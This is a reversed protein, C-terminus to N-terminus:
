LELGIKVEGVAPNRPEDAEYDGILYINVYSVPVGSKAYFSDLENQIADALRRELARRENRLDGINMLRMTDRHAREVTPGSSPSARTSLCFGAEFVRREATVSLGARQRHPGAGCETRLREPLTRVARLEGHAGLVRFSAITHTFSGRRRLMSVANPAQAQLNCAM